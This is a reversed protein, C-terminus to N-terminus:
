ATPPWYRRLIYPNTRPRCQQRARAIWAAGGRDAKTAWDAIAQASMAGAQRAIERVHRFLALTPISRIGFRTGLGQEAETDVKALRIRPELLAAAEVFPPAMTRCPGCWPAQALREAPLRNVAACHACVLDLSDSM